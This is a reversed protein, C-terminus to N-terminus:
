GGRPRARLLWVGANSVASTVKLCLERIPANHETTDFRLEDGVQPPTPELWQAVPIAVTWSPTYQFAPADAYASPLATDELALANLPFSVFLPITARASSSVTKSQPRKLSYAIRCPMFAASLGITLSASVPDARLSTVVSLFGDVEVADGTSLTPFDRRKAIVRRMERAGESQALTDSSLDCSSAALVRAQAEGHRMTQVADHLSACLANIASEIINVM